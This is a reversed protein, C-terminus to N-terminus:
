HTNQVLGAGGEGQEAVRATCGVGREVPLTATACLFGLLKPVRRSRDQLWSWRLKVLRDCFKGEVWSDTNRDCHSFPTPSVDCATMTLARDSWFTACWLEDTPWPPAPLETVYHSLCYLQNLPISKFGGSKVVSQLGHQTEKISCNIRWCMLSTYFQVTIAGEM